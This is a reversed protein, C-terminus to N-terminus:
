ADCVSGCLRCGVRRCDGTLEGRRARELEALLYAKDVRPSLHEWPLVADAAFERYAYSDADVGVADFAARWREFSFHESWDDFRAGLRVAEAVVPALRRDGRSFVAELYSRQPDHFRLEIARGARSRVRSRLARISEFLSDLPRFGLWQFPTHAKPVFCSVAVNVAGRRGDRARRTESVRAILDAIADLDEATETPLGIMFYLKILNWGRRYAETAADLLDSDRVPKNIVARLRESGTEPAFTIGTKKIRGVQEALEVSYTDVRLSPLSISTANRSLEDALTTVLERIRSYDGTSLSSLSVEEFGTAALTNRAQDLLTEVRRERVPRYIMGAQCFRCGQTCGRMVELVARDHVASVLPVVPATPYPAADLDRVVAREIPLPLDDYASEIASVAGSEAYRVHYFHPVYVGAVHTALWHLFELRAKGGARLDHSRKWARVGELIEVIAAEGDGLVVADFYSALGECSFACPGGAIVLPGGRELREDTTRPIGALDLMGLINTACLEYQLSFGVVDFDALPTFTELSYLPVGRARMADQMDPWPAYAREACAWDLGNVVHYLIKFGLHSMGVEYVDPFALALTVELGAHDKAIRNVEGGIYRGPKQVRPLLESELLSALEQATM